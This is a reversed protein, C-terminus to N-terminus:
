FLDPDRALSGSCWTGKIVVEAKISEADVKRKHMKGTTMKEGLVGPTKDESSLPDGVGHGPEKVTHFCLSSLVVAMDDMLRTALSLIAAHAPLADWSLPRPCLSVSPEAPLLTFSSSTVPKM